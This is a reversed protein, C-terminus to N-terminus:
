SPLKVKEEEKRYSGKLTKIIEITEILPYLRKKDYHKYGTELLDHEWTSPEEININEGDKVVPLISVGEGIELAGSREIAMITIYALPEADDVTFSKRAEKSYDIYGHTIFNILGFASGVAGVVVVQQGTIDRECVENEKIVTLRVVGLDGNVKGVLLFESRITIKRIESELSNLASPIDNDLDESHKKLLNYLEGENQFVGSFGIITNKGIKMIKIGKSAFAPEGGAYYVFRQDGALVVGNDAKIALILTM